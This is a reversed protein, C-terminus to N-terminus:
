KIKIGGELKASMTLHSFIRAEGTRPVSNGDLRSSGREILGTPRNGKANLDLNACLGELSPLLDGGGASRRQPIRRWALGRFAAFSTATTAFPAWATTSFSVAM